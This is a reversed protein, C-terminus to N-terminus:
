CRRRDSTGARGQPGHDTSPDGRAGERLAPRRALMVIAAFAHLRLIETNSDGNRHWRGRRPLLSNLACDSEDPFPVIAAGSGASPVITFTHPMMSAASSSMGRPAPTSKTPRQYPTGSTRLGAARDSADLEGRGRDLLRRRGPAPSTRWPRRGARPPARPRRPRSSGAGRSGTVRAQHALQLGPRRLHSTSFTRCTRAVLAELSRQDAGVLARADVHEQEVDDGVVPAHAAGSQREVRRDRGRDRVPKVQGEQERAPDGRWGPGTHRARGRM